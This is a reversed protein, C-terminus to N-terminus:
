AGDGRTGARRRRALGGLMLLGTGLLALSAPEPTVLAASYAVSTCDADRAPDHGSAAGTVTCRGVELQIDEWLLGRPTVTSPGPGRILRFDDFTVAMWGDLGASPCTVIAYAPEISAATCGRVGHEGQSHLCLAYAGDYGASVIDNGLFTAGLANGYATFSSHNPGASTNIVPLSGDGPANRRFIIANLFYRTSGGQALSGQLNQLYLTAQPGSGILAM